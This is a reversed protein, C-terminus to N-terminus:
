ADLIAIASIEVRVGKPLGAVAVTERAPASKESIYSGYIKNVAAFDAMDTLFISVKVVNEWDGGAQSLVASLNKMVQTTEEEISGTILEGTSPDLPIQGSIFLQQGVQVAQSYPGIPAPADPTLIVKKM